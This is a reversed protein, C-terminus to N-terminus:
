KNGRGKVTMGAEAVALAIGKGIGCGAGVLLAKRGTVNLPSPEDPSRSM